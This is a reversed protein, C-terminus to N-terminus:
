FFLSQTAAAYRCNRIWNLIARRPLAGDAWAMFFQTRLNLSVPDALLTLFLPSFLFILLRYLMLRKRAVNLDFVFGPKKKESSQVFIEIQM